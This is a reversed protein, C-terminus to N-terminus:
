PRYDDLVVTYFVTLTHRRTEGDEIPMITKVEHLYNCPFIVLDGPETKITVDYDPFAIEGGQYEDNLYILAGITVMPHEPFTEGDKHPPLCAYTSWKILELERKWTVKLVSYGLKPFYKEKVFNEIKSGLLTMTGVIQQDSIQGILNISKFDPIPLANMYSNLIDLDLKSAFNHEVQIADKGYDM